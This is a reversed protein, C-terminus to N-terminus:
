DPLSISFVFIINSEQEEAQILVNELKESLKYKWKNYDITQDNIIIVLDISDKSERLELSGTVIDLDDEIIIEIVTQGINTLMLDYDHLNRNETHISYTFQIHKHELNVQILWLAFHPCNINMLFREQNFGDIIENLKTKVKETKGMSLYGHVIQLDNMLDHRQLRLLQIIDKAEVM